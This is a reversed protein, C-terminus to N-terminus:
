SATEITGGSMSSTRRPMATSSMHADGPEFVCCSSSISSSPSPAPPVASTPLWPAGERPITTAFSASSFRHWRSVDRAPLNSEVPSTTVFWSARSKGSSSGVATPPGGAGRAKSRTSQSTGQEPSPVSRLDGTMQRRHDAPGPLM